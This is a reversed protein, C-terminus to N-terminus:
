GNWWRRSFLFRLLSVAAVVVLVGFIVVLWDLASFNALFERLARLM